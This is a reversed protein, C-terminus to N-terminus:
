IVSEGLAPGAGAMRAVAAKLGRELMVKAMHTRYEKSARIDTIPHIEQSVLEQAQHILDGSLERGDLLNEILTARAPTPAVACFAIRYECGDLALVGVGVQALDEGHYRGLKVYCAGNKRDPLPIHVGSVMEGARIATQKAGLFWSTIPIQRRAVPGEVMVGAEYALLAPASDLCPVASCINGVLTARNRVGVSAVTHSCEWLLPLRDRVVTSELLETFTVCAGVFLSGQSVDLSHLERIGKVDVIASPARVGEKMWVLLDTGGALVSANKGNRSLIETAELLSKPKHYEFECTIPM